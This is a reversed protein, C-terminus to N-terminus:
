LEGIITCEEIFKQPTIFVLYHDDTIILKLNDTFGAITYVQGRYYIIDNEKLM